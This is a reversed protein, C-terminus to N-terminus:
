QFVILLNMFILPKDLTMKEKLSFKELYESTERIRIICTCLQNYYQYTYGKSKKNKEIIRKKKLFCNNSSIIKNLAEISSLDFKM